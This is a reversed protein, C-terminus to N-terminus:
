CNFLIHRHTEPHDDCPCPNTSGDAFDDDSVEWRSRIGTPYVRNLQETAEEDPLTTCVSACGGGAAYLEFDPPTM